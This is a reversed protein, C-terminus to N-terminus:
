IENYGLISCVILNPEHIISDTLEINKKSYRYTYLVKYLQKKKLILFFDPLSLLHNIRKKMDGMIKRLFYGNKFPPLLSDLIMVFIFRANM